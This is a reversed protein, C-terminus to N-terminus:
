WSQRRECRVQRAAMLTVLREFEDDSFNSCVGRLRRSIEERVVKERLSHVEALGSDSYAYEEPTVVCVVASYDFTRCRVVPATKGIGVINRLIIKPRM